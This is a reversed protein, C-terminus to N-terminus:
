LGSTLTLPKIPMALTTLDGRDASRITVPQDPGRLDLMVDPGIATSIAPYLNTLHFSIQLPQGTVTAPLPVSGTHSHLTLTHPAVILTLHEDAHDEIAQRFQGKPVTVRTTVEPLTALMLAYDPFQGTLIHCHRDERNAMRLRIEQPTAELSVLPSRRIDGTVARLEGGNITASWTAASQSVPVLTRTALRYRDTATLTFADENAEIHLGGLVPLAPDHATATLVQEIADAFVPGKLEAIPLSPRAGLSSTILAAKRQADHADGVVHAVHEDILRIADDPDADLVTTVTTLPMGIERLGRLVTAQALQNARYYRYGSAPDIEAPCLLGSDDYFRLASATLGSRRAFVGIPM